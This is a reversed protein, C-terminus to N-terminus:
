SAMCGVLWHCEYTSIYCNVADSDAVPAEPNERPLLEGPHPARCVHAIRRTAKRREKKTLALEWSMVHTCSM